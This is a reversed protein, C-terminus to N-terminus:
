ATSGPIIEEVYILINPFDDNFVKEKLREWAAKPL